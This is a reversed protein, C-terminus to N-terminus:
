RDRHLRRSSSSHTRQGSEHLRTAPITIECCWLFDQRDQRVEHRQRALHHQRHCLVYPGRRTYGSGSSRQCPVWIRAMRKDTRRCNLLPTCISVAACCYLFLAAVQKRSEFVMSSSVPPSKLVDGSSPELQGLLVFQVLLFIQFSGFSPAAPACHAGARGHRLRSVWSGLEALFSLPPMIKGHDM